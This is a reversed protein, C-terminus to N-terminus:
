PRRTLFLFAGLKSATLVDPVGDRDVDTVTVQTGLGSDDDILQPVFRAGGPAAPDRRLLFAYNVPTAMPEVDGTPGHAWRRKGTVVDPLGDGDLDALALAHPQSFAVGFTKEEDRTGMMRREVFSITGAADRRQEFWSLGWGHANKATVVDARGDGNVDAVLMQAGGRDTSFVFPHKKWLTGPPSSPPPQQWWGENLVLDTRGDGDIDGIGQGHYYHHFEAKGTVPHFRWPKAPDARDPAYWGWQKIKDNATEGSISVLEPRGDGDVDGFLPSEGFVRRSVFHKKWRSDPQLAAAPGPNEYWFAEHFLVRGLVLIDTHGDGNFDYPFSFMSNTPNKELVQPIPEFFAYRTRFDPGRYWFPGAVIDPQGDGDFDAAHIGDAWYQHTLAVKRFALTRPAAAFAAATVSLALLVAVVSVATLVFRPPSLPLPM